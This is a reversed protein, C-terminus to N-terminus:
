FINEFRPLDGMPIQETLEIAVEIKTKAEKYDNLKVYAVAEAIWLDFEKLDNHSIFSHLTRKKSIWYDQIKEADEETATEDELKEYISTFHTKLDSFTRKLYVQEFIAGATFLAAVIIVSILSKAM